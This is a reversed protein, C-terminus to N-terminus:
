RTTASRSGSPRLQRPQFLDLRAGLVVGAQGRGEGPGLLRKRYLYLDVAGKKAWHEEAVIKSGQAAAPRALAARPASSLPPARPRCFSAAAFRSLHRAASSAPMATRGELPQDKLCAQAWNRSRGQAYCLFKTNATEPCAVVKGSSKGAFSPWCFKALLVQGAFRPGPTPLPKTKAETSSCYKKFGLPNEAPLSGHTEQGIVFEVRQDRGLHQRVGRRDRGLDDGAVFVDRRRLAFLLLLDFRAQEVHAVLEALLLAQAAAFEELRGGAHGGGEHRHVVGEAREEIHAAGLGRRGGHCLLAGVASFSWNMMSMCVCKRRSSVRMWVKTRSRSATPLGPQFGASTPLGCVM